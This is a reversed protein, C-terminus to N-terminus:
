EARPPPGGPAPGAPPQSGALVGRLIDALAGVFQERNDWYNHARLGGGGTNGVNDVQRDTIKAAAPKGSEPDTFVFFAPGAFPVRLPDGRKWGAPTNLPDAVPDAPDWFNTWPKQAIREVQTGWRFFQAFKRLPSGSTVVASLCDAADPPLERLVDFAIATGNSHANVVIGAVDRRAGLRWVAERVFDRVRVRLANYSVYAALDDDITRLATLVGSNEVAGAEVVPAGPTTTGLTPPAPPADGALRAAGSPAPAQSRRDGADSRRRLSPKPAPPQAPPRRLGRLIAVIYAVLGRPSAYRQLNAAINAATWLVAGPHAATDQERTYVLAVHAIPHHGDTLPASATDIEDRQRIDRWTGLRDLGYPAADGEPPWSGEIYIPGTHGVNSSAPLPDDGLLGDLAARLGDHLSDAYGPVGPLPPQEFGVGHISVLCIVPPREAEQAAAPDPSM